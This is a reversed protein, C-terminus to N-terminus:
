KKNTSKKKVEKEKEEITIDSVAQKKTKAPPKPLPKPKYLDSSKDSLPTKIPVQEKPSSWFSPNSHLPVSLYKLNSAQSKEAKGIAGYQKLLKYNEKSLGKVKNINANSATLVAQYSTWQLLSKVDTKDPMFQWCRVAKDDSGAVVFLKSDYAAWALTNIQGTFGKTLLLREGSHLSWIAFNGYGGTVLYQNDASFAMSFIEGKLDEVHGVIRIYKRQKDKSFPLLKKALSKFEKIPDISIDLSYILASSDYSTTVLYRGDSSMGIDSIKKQHWKFTEELTGTNIDWLNVKGDNHGTFLYHGKQSFVLCTVEYSENDINSDDEFKRLLEGSNTDWLFAGGKGGTALFQDDPSFSVRTAECFVKRFHHIENKIKGIALDWVYLYYDIIVAMYQGNKSFAISNVNGMGHHKKILTQIINGSALSHFHVQMEGSASAIYKAHPNFAITSIASKHIMSSSELKEQELNWWRIKDENGASIIKESNVSFAVNSIYGEHGEFKNKLQGTDLDWVYITNDSCGAAVYRQAADFTVCTIIALSPGELMYVEQGSAVDFIRVTADNSGTAVLLGDPSYAVAHITAVPSFSKERKGDALRWLYARKRHGSIVHQGDPSFSVDCIAGQHGASLSEEQGVVWPTDNNFCHELKKNELNIVCVDTDDSGSVIYHGNPSFQVSNIESQHVNLTYLIEGKERHWINISGDTNGTALYQGDKSMTVCNITGGSNKEFIKPEKKKDTAYLYITNLWAVVVFFPNNLYYCTKSVGMGYKIKLYPIENFYIGEMNAESFNAESLWGREFIVRHLDAMMFNTHDLVARSLDANAIHIRSLDLGSFSIRARNLITIANAASIGEQSNDRSAYVRDFLTKKFAEDEELRDALFQLTNKEEVLLRENFYDQKKDKLQPSKSPEQTVKVEQQKSLLNEYLDRTLFYELLSHHIFAYQHFAVERVLCATRLLEVKKDEPNFFKQLPNDEQEEFLNSAQSFDYTIQTVKQQHMLQALKKAYDWFEPKIDEDDKIKKALKLKQEQRIFWQEIFVDYLKAQTMYKQEKDQPMKPLTEMALKLLFPTKILNKSGPMEEIAKQYRELSWEPKQHQIYQKIYQEIQEESFPKIIMEDYEQYLAKEGHFPTFYLKYNDVHYLYERRCTIIIKTNWKELHNSVWLNKLQHIEDFADLIFIFSHTQKLSAIQEANFGFKEFTEEIARNVPNKLSPLSIWIPILSDSKHDQWLQSALGQTYLSKGSGSDGLLLLVKKDSNLFKTMEEELNFSHESQAFWTGRLPVFTLSEQQWDHAHLHAQHLKDLPLIEIQSEM